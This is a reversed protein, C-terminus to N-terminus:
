RRYVKWKVILQLVKLQEVIFILYVETKRSSDIICRIRSKKLKTVQCIFDVLEDCDVRIKGNRNKNCSRPSASARKILLTPDYLLLDNHGHTTVGNRAIDRAQEIWDPTKSQDVHSLGQYGAYCSNRSRDLIGDEQAGVCIRRAALPSINMKEAIVEHFRYSAYNPEGPEHILIKAWWWEQYPAIM